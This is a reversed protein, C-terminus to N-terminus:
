AILLTNSQVKTQRCALESKQDLSPSENTDLANDTSDVGNATSDQLSDVEVQEVSVETNNIPIKNWM